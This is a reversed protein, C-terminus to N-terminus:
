RDKKNFLIYKWGYHKYANRSMTLDRSDMHNASGYRFMCICFYAGIIIWILLEM